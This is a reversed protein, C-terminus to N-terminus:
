RGDEHREINLDLLVIADRRHRLQCKELNSPGISRCSMIFKSQSSLAIGAAVIDAQTM